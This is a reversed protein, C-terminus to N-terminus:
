WAFSVSSGSYRANSMNRAIGFTGFTLFFIVARTAVFAIDFVNQSNDLIRHNLPRDIFVMYPLEDPDHQKAGKSTLSRITRDSLRPNFLESGCELKVLRDNVNFGRLVFNLYFAIHWQV